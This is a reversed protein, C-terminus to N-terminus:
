DQYLNLIGKILDIIKDREQSENIDQALSFLEPQREEIEFFAFFESSTMGLGTIIKELTALTINIENREVRGLYTEDVDTRASLDALTM